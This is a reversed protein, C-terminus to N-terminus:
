TEERSEDCAEENVKSRSRVWKWLDEDLVLRGRALGEIYPLGHCNMLETVKTKEVRLVKATEDVTLLEPMTM